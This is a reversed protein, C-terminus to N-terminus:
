LAQEEVFSLSLLIARRGESYLLLNNLVIYNHVQEGCWGSEINRTSPASCFFFFFVEWLDCTSGLHM